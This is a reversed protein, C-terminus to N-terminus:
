APLLFDNEFFHFGVLFICPSIQVVDGCKVVDGCEPSTGVNQYSFFFTPVDPSTGVNELDHLRGWRKAGAVHGCKLGHIGACCKGGEGRSGNALGGAHM